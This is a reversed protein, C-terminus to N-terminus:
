LDYVTTPAHVIFSCRVVYVHNILGSQAMSKDLILKVLSGGNSPLNIWKSVRSHLSVKKSSLKPKIRYMKCSNIILVSSLAFSILRKFNNPTGGFCKTRRSLNKGISERNMVTSWITEVKFDIISININNWHLIIRKKKVVVNVLTDFVKNFSSSGLCIHRPCVM